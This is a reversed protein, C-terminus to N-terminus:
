LNNLKELQSLLKARDKDNLRTYLRKFRRYVRRQIPNPNQFNFGVAKRIQRARTNRM